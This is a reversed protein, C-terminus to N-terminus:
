TQKQCLTGGKEPNIPEQKYFVDITLQDPTKQFCIPMYQCAQNFNFCADPNRYWEKSEFRRLMDEATNIIDAEFLDIEMLNRYSFHRKYYFEPRAKYDDMIRKGFGDKDEKKSKRLLPKKVFDYIVGQVDHGAKRVAWTYLSAQSSVKCRQEFQGFSLGTTKLERIWLLGNEKILGDIKLVCQVGPIVDIKLELEPIIEEFTSLDKPYNLWMAIATYKMLLM